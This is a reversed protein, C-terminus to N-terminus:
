KFCKRAYKLFLEDNKKLTDTGFYLYALSAGTLILIVSVIIILIKITKKM